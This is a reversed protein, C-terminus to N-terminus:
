VICIIIICIIITRNATRGLGTFFIRTHIGPARTDNIRYRLLVGNISTYIYIGKKINFYLCKRSARKKIKKNKARYASKRSFLIGNM